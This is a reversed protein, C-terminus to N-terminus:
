NHKAITLSQLSNRNWELPEARRPVSSVVMSSQINWIADVSDTVPTMLLQGSRIEMITLRTEKIRKLTRRKKERCKKWKESNQRSCAGCVPASRVPTRRYEGASWVCECSCQAHGDMQMRTNELQWCVATHKQNTNTHERRAPARM